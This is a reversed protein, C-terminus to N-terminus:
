MGIQLRTFQLNGIEHNESFIHSGKDTGRDLLPFFPCLLIFLSQM